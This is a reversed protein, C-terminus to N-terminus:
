QWGYLDRLLSVVEAPSLVWVGFSALVDQRGRTIFDNSNLTVFVDGGMRVHLRLHEVDFLQNETLLKATPFLINQLERHLDPGALVASGSLLGPFSFLEPLTGLLKAKAIREEGVLEKLMVDSRQLDLHGAKEWRELINLDPNRGKANICSTDLTIRRIKLTTSTWANQNFPWTCKICAQANASNTYGCKACEPM